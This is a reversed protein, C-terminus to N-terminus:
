TARSDLIAIFARGVSFSADINSTIDVNFDMCTYSTKSDQEPRVMIKVETPMTAVINGSNAKKFEVRPKVLDVEIDVWYGPYKKKLEPLWDKLDDVQIGEEKSDTFFERVWHDHPNTTYFKLLGQDEASELFTNFVRDTVLVSLYGRRADFDHNVSNPIKSNFSGPTDFEGIFSIDLVDNGIMKIDRTQGWNFNFHGKRGLMELEVPANFHDFHNLLSKAVIENTYDHGFFNLAHKVTVEVGKIGWMFFANVFEDEVYKITTHGLGLDIYNTDIRPEGDANITWIGELVFKMSKIHVNIRSKM